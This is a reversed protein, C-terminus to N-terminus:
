LRILAEQMNILDKYPSLSQLYFTSSPNQTSVDQKLVHLSGMM